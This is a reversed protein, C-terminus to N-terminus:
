LQVELRRRVFDPNNGPNDTPDRPDLCRGGVPQNCAVSVIRWRTTPPASSGAAPAPGAIAACSVTVTFNGLVSDLPMAFSANACSNNRLQQFLGWEIGARAAQYARAGDLDLSSGAQQAGFMRVAAVGVAALVVLLFVATVLGIGASRRLRRPHFSGTMRKM